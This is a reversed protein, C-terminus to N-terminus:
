VHARGIEEGADAAMPPPLCSDCEAQIAPRVACMEAMKTTFTRRMAAAIYADGRNRQLFAKAAACTSAFDSLDIAEVVAFSLAHALCSDPLSLLRSCDRQQCKNQKKMAM